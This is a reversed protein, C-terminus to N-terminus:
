YEDVRYGPSNEALVVIGRRSIEDSCFHGLENMVTLLAPGFSSSSSVAILNWYGYFYYPFLKHAIVRVFRHM